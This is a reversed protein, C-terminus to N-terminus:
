RSKDVRKMMVNDVVEKQCGRGGEGGERSGVRGERGEGGKMRGEERSVEKM